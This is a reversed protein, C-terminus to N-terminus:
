APEKGSERGADLRAIPSVGLTGNRERRAAEEEAIRRDSQWMTAKTQHCEWWEAGQVFAVVTGSPVADWADTRAPLRPKGTAGCRRCPRWRNGEYASWGAWEQTTGDCEACRGTDTEHRTMEAIVEARTVCATKENGEWKRREGDARPMERMMRYLVSGDDLVEWGCVTFGEPNGIKRLAVNGGHDIRANM